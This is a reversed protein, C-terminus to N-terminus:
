SNGTGVFAGRLDGTADIEGLYSGSMGTVDVFAGTISGSFDQFSWTASGNQVVDLSGSHLEGTGIDVAFSATVNSLGDGLYSTLSFNGNFDAYDGMDAPTFVAWDLASGLDAP